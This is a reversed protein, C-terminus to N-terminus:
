WFKLGSDGQRGLHRGKCEGGEKGMVGISLCGSRDNINRAGVGGGGLRRNRGGAGSAWPQGDACHRKRDARKAQKTEIM